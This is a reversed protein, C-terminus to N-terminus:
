ADRAVHRRKKDFMTDLINELRKYDAEDAKFHITVSKWRSSPVELSLSVRSLTAAKIEFNGCFQEDNSEMYYGDDDEFECQFQILFYASLNDPENEFHVQFYDGAESVVVSEFQLEVM